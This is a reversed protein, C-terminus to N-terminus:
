QGLTLYIPRRFIQFMSCEPVDKSCPIIIMIILFIHLILNLFILNFWFYVSIMESFLFSFLVFSVFVYCFSSSFFFHFHNCHTFDCSLLLGNRETLDALLKIMHSDRIGLKMTWLFGLHHREFEKILGFVPVHFMLSCEPVDRFM